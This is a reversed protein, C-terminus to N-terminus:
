TGATSASGVPPAPPAVLEAELALEILRQDRPALREDQEILWDALREGAVYVVRDGEARGQPFSGWVVVVAQVWPRLQTASEIREKLRASAGRMSSELRNLVYDHRGTDEYKATLGEPELILKGALNKSDLLFVGAAGIVIHDLNGFEGDRDHFARWGQGELPRLAKWTLREGDAGIKWRAIHEPPDDWIWLIMGCTSGIFLGAFFEGHPAYFWIPITGAIVVAATFVFSLVLRSRWEKLAEEYHAMASRGAEIQKRRVIKM